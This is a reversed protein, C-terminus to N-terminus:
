RSLNHSRPFPSPCPARFTPCGAAEISRCLGEHRSPLIARVRHSPSVAAACIRRRGDLLALGRRWAEEAGVLLVPPVPSPLGAYQRAQAVLVEDLTALGFYSRLVLADTTVLQWDGLGPEVEYMVDIIHALADPPHSGPSRLLCAVATATNV